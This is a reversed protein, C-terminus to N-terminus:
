RKFSVVMYEGAMGPGVNYDRLAYGKEAAVGSVPHGDLSFVNYRSGCEPCEALHEDDTNIFVRVSQKREVPCSLDYAKPTGAVDCVLLVGGFGTYTTAVYPFNSPVRQERIFRKWTLAGSVGYVNWEAVTPFVINVPAVPVRDDDLSDCSLSGFALAATIAAAVM